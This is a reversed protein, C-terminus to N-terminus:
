RKPAEAVMPTHYRWYVGDATKVAEFFETHMSTM